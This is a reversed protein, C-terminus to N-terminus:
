EGGQGEPSFSIQAILVGDEANQLSKRIRRM